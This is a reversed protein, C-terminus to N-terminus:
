QRERGCTEQKASAGEANSFCRGLRHSSACDWTAQGLPTLAASRVSVVGNDRGGNLCAREVIRSVWEELRDSMLEEMEDQSVMDTVGDTCILFIEPASIESLVSMHPEIPRPDM